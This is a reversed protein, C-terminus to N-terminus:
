RSRALVAAVPAFDRRHSETAGHEALAKLHAATGYGAHRDFGYAPYRVHLRAMLRDRTVKAVISAAAISLSLSDGKVIARAPCPLDPPLANGDILAMDPPLALAEIARRMALLSAARINLRAIEEVSGFGLAVARADRMITDFLTERARASLKKSDNAGLPPRDPDLVVAAAVVPGALPGRGVEDVGAVAGAGRARCARELDLSPGAM